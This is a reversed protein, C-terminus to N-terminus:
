TAMPHPKIFAITQPRTKTTTQEYFRDIPHTSIKNSLLQAAGYIDM